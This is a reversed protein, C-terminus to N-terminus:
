FLCVLSSFTNVQPWLPAHGLGPLAHSYELFVYVHLIPLRAVATVSVLACFVVYQRPACGM